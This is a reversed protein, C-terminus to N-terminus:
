KETWWGAQHVLSNELSTKIETFMMLTGITLQGLEISSCRRRVESLNLYECIRLLM